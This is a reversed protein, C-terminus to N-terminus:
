HREFQLGTLYDQGSSDIAIGEGNGNGNGGFFTSYELNGGNTSVETAFADGSVKPGKAVSMPAAQLMRQLM